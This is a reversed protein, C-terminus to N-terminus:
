DGEPVTCDITLEKTFLNSLEKVSVERIDEGWNAMRLAVTYLGKESEKAALFKRNSLRVEQGNGFAHWSYGAKFALQQLRRSSYPTVEAILIETPKNM